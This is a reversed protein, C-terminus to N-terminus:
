SIRRRRQGLSHSIMSMFVEPKLSTISEEGHCNQLTALKVSQERIAGDARLLKSKGVRHHLEHPFCLPNIKWSSWGNPLRLHYAHRSVETTMVCLLFEDGREFRAVRRHLRCTVLVCYLIKVDTKDTRGMRMGPANPELKETKMEGIPNIVWDSNKLVFPEYIM